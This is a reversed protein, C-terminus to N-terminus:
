GGGVGGSKLASADGGAANPNPTRCLPEGPNTTTRRRPLSDLRLYYEPQVASRSFWSSTRPLPLLGPAPLGTPCWREGGKDVVAPRAKEPWKRTVLGVLLLNANYLTRLSGGPQRTLDLDLRRNGETVLKEHMLGDTGPALALAGFTWGSSTTM